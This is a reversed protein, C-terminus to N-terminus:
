KWAGAEWCSFPCCGGAGQPWTLWSGDGSRTSPGQRPSVALASCPLGWGQAGQSPHARSIGQAMRLTSHGACWPLSWSM